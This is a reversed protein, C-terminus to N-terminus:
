MIYRNSIRRGDAAHRKQKKVLGVECLEHLAKDVTRRTCGCLGAITNRSPWCDNNAHDKHRLLCCYVVFARPGLGFDFIQNSVMFFGNRKTM